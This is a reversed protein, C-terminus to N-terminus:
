IFMLALMALSALDVGGGSSSGGSGGSQGGSGGGSLVGGGGNFGLIAGAPNLNNAISNMMWQDQQNDLWEKQLDSQIEAARLTTANNNANMALQTTTVMNTKTISAQTAERETQAALNMGIYQNNASLKGLELATANQALETKSRLGAAYKAAETEALIQTTRTENNQQNILLGLVSDQEHSRANIGAIAVQAGYQQGAQHNAANIKALAVNTTAGIQQSQLFVQDAPAVGSGKSLLIVGLVVILGGGIVYPNKLIHEM